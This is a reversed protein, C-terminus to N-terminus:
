SANSIVATFSDVIWDRVVRAEPSRRLDRHYVLWPVRASLAVVPDCRASVDAVRGRTALFRPLMAVGAGSEVARLLAATSSSTATVRPVLGFQEVWVSEPIRGYVGGYTLINQEALRITKRRALSPSAYLGFEIAPLKRAILEAATPRVLRIAMDAEGRDLDALKTSVELSVKPAKRQSLLKGLRPALVEAVVTETSSVRVEDRLVSRWAVLRDTTREMATVATEADACIAEGAATLRSGRAGRLLLPVGLDKELRRIRRSVTGVPVGIQRAALNLSRHSAVAVLLRLDNWDPRPM